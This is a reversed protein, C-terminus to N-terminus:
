NAFKNIYLAIQLNTFIFSFKCLKIMIWCNWLTGVGCQGWAVAPSLCCSISPSWLDEKQANQRLVWFESKWEERNQRLKYLKTKLELHSDWWEKLRCNSVKASLIICTRCFNIKIARFPLFTKSIGCGRKIWIIDILEQLQYGIMGTYLTM